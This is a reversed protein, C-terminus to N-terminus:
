KVWSDISWSLGWWLLASIVLYAVGGYFTSRYWNALPALRQEYKAVLNHQYAPLSIAGKHEVQNNNVINFLKNRYYNLKQEDDCFRGEFGLRLVLLYVAALQRELVDYTGDRLLEDLDDYFCEGSSCSQYIQQELLVHHWDDRGVWDLKMILLEDALAVMAFCAKDFLHLQRDTLKHQWHLRQQGIWQSLKISVATVTENGEPQRELKLINMVELDLQEHEIWYKVTVLQQYFESMLNVLNISQGSM